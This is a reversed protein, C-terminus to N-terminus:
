DFFNKEPPTCFEKAFCSGHASAVWWDGSEEGCGQLFFYYKPFNLALEALCDEAEYWKAYWWAGEYMMDLGFPANSVGESYGHREMIEEFCLRIAEYEPTNQELYNKNEDRIEMNFETYYGM